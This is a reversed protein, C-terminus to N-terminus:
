PLHTAMSEFFEVIRQAGRRDPDLDPNYITIDWGVLGRSTLAVRTLESLQEWDLGGPQPYRVAALADTALVDLDLHFWWHNSTDHLKQTFSATITPINGAQLARDDLMTVRDAISTIGSDAIESRDRPGLAIVDEARVVPLINRLGPVNDATTLGLALGLEMDAAEGTTSQAPPWADEHGDVFLLGTRGYFDRSAALCGLLLPCEGGIVIPFEGERLVHAVTTRVADIMTTMSQPAIIGSAPDRTPTPSGRAVDGRDTMAAGRSIAETLGADRLVGPALAEGTTLGTSTYPVGIVAYTMASQIMVSTLDHERASEYSRRCDLLPERHNFEYHPCTKLRSIHSIRTCVRSNTRVAATITTGSIM